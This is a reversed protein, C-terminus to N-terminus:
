EAEHKYIIYPLSKVRRSRGTRFVLPLTMIRNDCWAGAKFPSSKHVQLEKGRKSIQLLYLSKGKHHLGSSNVLSNGAVFPM